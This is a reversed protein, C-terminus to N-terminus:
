LINGGKIFINKEIVCKRGSFKINLEKGEIYTKTVNVLFQKKDTEVLYYASMDSLSDAARLVGPQVIFDIIAEVKSLKKKRILWYISKAMPYKDKVVAAYKSGRSGTREYQKLDIEEKIVTAAYENKIELLSDVSVDFLKAICQLNNIDPIGNDAEWKTIAQRSVCLKEALKEQSLGASKRYNKIKEGLTM